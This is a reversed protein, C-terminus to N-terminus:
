PCAIKVDVIRKSGTTSNLKIRTVNRRPLRSNYDTVTQSLSDIRVLGNKGFSDEMGTITAPIPTGNEDYECNVFYETFVGPTAIFSREDSKRAPPSKLERPKLVVDGSDSSDVGTTSLRYITTGALITSAIVAIAMLATGSSAWTAGGGRVILSLAFLVVIGTYLWPNTAWMDEFFWLNKLIFFAIVGGILAVIVRWHRTIWGQMQQTNVTGTTFHPRQALRYGVVVVVIIGGIILIWIWDAM